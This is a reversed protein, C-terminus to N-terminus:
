TPAGLAPLVRSIYDAFHHKLPELNRDDNVFFQCIWPPSSEDVSQLASQIKFQVDEFFSDPKGETAAPILELVMGLTRGDVHTFIREGPEFAAWPLLETFSPPRMAMRRRAAVTLPEKPTPRGAPGGAAGTPQLLAGFLRNFTSQM